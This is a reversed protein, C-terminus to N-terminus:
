RQQVRRALSGDLAALRLELQRVTLHLDVADLGREVEASVADVLELLSAEGERWAVETAALVAGIAVPSAHAIARLEDLAARLAALESSVVATVRRAEAEAGARTAEATAVRGQGRDFVPLDWGLGATLSASDGDTTWYGGVRLEPEPVRSRRAERAAQEAHALALRAQEVLPSDSTEAAGLPLAETLVGVADITDDARGLLGALASAAGRREQRALALQRDLALGALRMRDVDSPRAAGEEARRRTLEVLAGLRDSAGRLLQEREQAALLSLWAQGVAEGLAAYRSTARAEGLQEALQGRRLRASLEGTLPLSFGLDVQHQQGNIADATGRVRGYGQYGISPNTWASAEVREARGLDAEVSALVADPAAQAATWAESLTLPEAALALGFWCWPIM